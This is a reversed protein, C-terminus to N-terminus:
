FPVNLITLYIKLRACSAKLTLAKCTFPLFPFASATMYKRRRFQLLTVQFDWPPMNIHHVLYKKRETLVLKMYLTYSLPIAATWCICISFQPLHECISFWSGSAPSLFHFISLIHLIYITYHYCSFHMLYRLCTSTYSVELFVLTSMM